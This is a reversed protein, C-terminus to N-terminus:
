KQLEQKTGSNTHHINAFKLFNQKSSRKVLVKFSFPLCPWSTENPFFNFQLSNLQWWEWEQALYVTLLHSLWLYPWVHSKYFTTSLGCFSGHAREQLNALSIYDRSLDKRGGGPPQEGRCLLTSQGLYCFDHDACCAPRVWMQCTADSQLVSVIHKSNSTQMPSPTSLMDAHTPFQEEESGPSDGCCM